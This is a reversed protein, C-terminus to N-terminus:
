PRARLRSFTRSTIQGRLRVLEPYDYFFLVKQDAISNGTPKTQLIFATWSEAIDEGPNTAAYDTVFEGPHQQYFAYIADQYADEDQIAELDAVQDEYQSWFRDYFANIYSTPKACGEGPFYTPCSSAAENYLADNDQQYFLDEDINVQADNM